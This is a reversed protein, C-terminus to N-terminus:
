GGFLLRAVGLDIGGGMLVQWSPASGFMRAIGSTLVLPRAPDTGPIRLNGSLLVAPQGTPNGETRAPQINTALLQLKASYLRPEMRRDLFQWTVGFGANPYLPVVDKGDLAVLVPQVAIDGTFRKTAGGDVYVTRLFAEVTAV